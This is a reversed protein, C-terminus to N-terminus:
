KAAAAAAMLEQLLKENNNIYRLVGLRFFITKEKGVKQCNEIIQKYVTPTNKTAELIARHIPPLSEENLLLESRILKFTGKLSSDKAIKRLEVDTFTKEIKM